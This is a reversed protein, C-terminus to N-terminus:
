FYQDRGEGCLAILKEDESWSLDNIMGGLAKVELETKLNNNELSWVRLVGCQDGSAVFRGSSSIKAVGVNYAHERYEKSM